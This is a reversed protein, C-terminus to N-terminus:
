AAGGKSQAAAARERIEAAGMGPAVPFDDAVVGGALVVVRTAVAAIADFEHAACVFASHPRLAAIAAAASARGEPDLGAFPDDLLVHRPRMLVADALAARRRNGRSLSNLPADLMGGLGCVAATELVRRRVRVVREGKLRARFKLFAKVTMDDALIDAEPMYGVSKRHRVPDAAASQGNSLVEGSDPLFVGAAIRLLTTKGAGNAGALAVVEGAEARFSVGRLVPASGYSFSIGRLEIM